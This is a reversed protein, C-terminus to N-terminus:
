QPIPLGCCQLDGPISEREPHYAIRIWTGQRDLVLLIALVLSCKVKVVLMSFDAGCHINGTLDVSASYLSIEAFLVRSITTLCFSHRLRANSIRAIIVDRTLGM